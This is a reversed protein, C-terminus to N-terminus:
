CSSRKTESATELDDHGPKARGDVNKCDASLFGHISPDLGAMVFLCIAVTKALEM